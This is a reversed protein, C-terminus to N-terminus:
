ETATNSARFGLPTRAQDAAAAAATPALVDWTFVRSCILALVLAGPPASAYKGGSNLSM